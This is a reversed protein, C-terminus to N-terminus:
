NTLNSVVPKYVINDYSKRQKVRISINSYINYYQMSETIHDQESITSSEPNASSVRYDELTVLFMHMATQPRQVTVLAHPDQLKPPEAVLQLDNEENPVQREKKMKTVTYAMDIHECRDVTM